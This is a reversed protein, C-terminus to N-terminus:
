HKEELQLDLARHLNLIILSNCFAALRTFYLVLHENDFYCFLGKNHRKHSVLNFNLEKNGQYQVCSLTVTCADPLMFQASQIPASCLSELLQESYDVSSATFPSKCPSEASLLELPSINLTHETSQWYCSFFAISGKFKKFSKEFPLFVVSTPKGWSCLTQLAFKWFHYGFFM